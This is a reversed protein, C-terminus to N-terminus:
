GSYTLKRALIKKGFDGRRRISFYLCKFFGLLLLLRFLFIIKGWDSLTSSEDGSSSWPGEAYTLNDFEIRRLDLNLPLYSEQREIEAAQQYIQQLIHFAKRKRLRDPRGRSQVAMIGFWEENIERDPFARFVSGETDHIEPNGAKWWEDSFEFVFGGAIVDRRNFIEAVLKAIGQAQMEENESNSRADFADIGFETILVPKDTAIALEDFLKGFSTGRYIQLAWFDVADGFRRIRGMMDKSEAMPTSVWKRTWGRKDEVRRAEERLARVAELAEETAELENGVLFGMTAPHDGLADLAELFRSRLAEVNLPADPPVWLGVLM